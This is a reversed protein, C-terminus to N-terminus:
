VTSGLYTFEDVCNVKTGDVMIDVEKARSSNPQYLVETKKINIKLGFKKSANSFADLIQQMKEPSHAILASDDAFLLERVLIQLSKTRAKFHAVKFLDADQRSQIYVSDTMDRFAEELMESLFISFLTPALMCGQKVGNTVNFAELTDVIDRVEAKMRTHLSEIMSIFKEPCGYKRLLKWLGSRGVTDFAKTFDIFVIYLPQDQEFCKEQLQRLSFIMDITSRNARFGCQSESVTQPTIHRTLRDLLIRAFIKGAISLLSIGRYNGCDTRDGKKYITVITADKWAQPVSGDDWAKCILDHLKITMCTGGHKWVEAPVGDGGPTKGDKLSAIARKLDEMTPPEDLCTNTDQQHIRDLAEQEIEGSVNLLNQFHEKWRALVKRNDSYTEHGDASKLQM